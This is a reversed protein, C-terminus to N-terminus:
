DRDRAQVGRRLKLEYRPALRFAGEIGVLSRSIKYFAKGRPHKGQMEPIIEM